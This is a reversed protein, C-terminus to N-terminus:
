AVRRRSSRGSSGTSRPGTRGTPLARMTRRRRGLLTRRAGKWPPTRTPRFQVKVPGHGSSGSGRPPPEKLEPTSGTRVVACSPAPCRNAPPGGVRWLCTEVGQGGALAVFQIACIGQNTTGLYCRSLQLSRWCIPGIAARRGSCPGSSPGRGRTATTPRCKATVWASKAPCTRSRGRPGTPGVGLHRQVEGAPSSSSPELGDPDVTGGSPGDTAAATAPRRAEHPRPPIASAGPRLLRRVQDM